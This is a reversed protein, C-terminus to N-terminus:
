GLFGKGIIDVEFGVDCVLEGYLVCDMEFVIVFKVVCGVEFDISQVMYGIGEMKM